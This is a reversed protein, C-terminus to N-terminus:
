FLSVPFFSNVAWRRLWSQWGHPLGDEVRIAWGGFCRQGCQWFHIQLLCRRSYIQWLLALNVVTPAKYTPPQVESHVPAVSRVYAM